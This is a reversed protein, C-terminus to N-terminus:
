KEQGGSGNQDFSQHPPGPGTPLVLNEQSTQGNAALNHSINMNDNPDGFYNLVDPPLYELWPIMDGGPFNFNNFQFNSPNSIDIDQSEIFMNDSQGSTPDSFYPNHQMSTQQSPTHSTPVLSYGNSVQPRFKNSPINLTPASASSASYPSHLGLLLDAEATSVPDYPLSSIRQGQSIGPASSDYTQVQIHQRPQAAADDASRVIPQIKQVRNSISQKQTQKATEGETVPNQYLFSLNPAPSNATGTISWGIANGFDLKPSWLADQSTSRRFKDLGPRGLSAGFSSKRWGPTTFSPETSPMEDVDESTFLLPDALGKSKQDLATLIYRCGAWYEDLTKLAQYCRQYNQNAATALLSHKAAIKRETENKRALDSELRMSSNDIPSDGRSPPQSSHAAVEALFACAAIYMPQSTFPNGIFSNVDIFEAFALIDAITKASSM